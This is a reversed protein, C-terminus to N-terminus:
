KLVCTLVFNADNCRPYHYDTEEFDPDLFAFIPCCKPNERWSSLDYEVAIANLESYDITKTLAYAFASNSGSEIINDYDLNKWLYYTKGDFEITEETYIFGDGSTPNFFNSEWDQWDGPYCGDYEPLSSPFDDVWIILQHEWGAPIGRSSPRSYKEPCPSIFKGYPAVGGLWDGLIGTQINRTADCKVYHLNSCNNFMHAYCTETLIKAPLEPARELSTCGYFMEYYCSSRLTMAPLISPASKLSTCGYFMKDYCNTGNLTTAPLEPARELSTCGKFMGECGNSYITGPFLSDPVEVLDTCGQFMYECSYADCNTAAIEPTKILNTCGYFMYAYCYECLTTAPLIKPPYVISCGRFMSDYCLDETTYPFVLDSADHIMSDRLFCYFAYLPLGQSRRNYFDDPYLMSMLNGYIIWDGDTELKWIWLNQSQDEIAYGWGDGGEGVLSITDDTNLTALTVGYNGGGQRDGLTVSTWAGGNISYKITRTYEGTPGSFNFYINSNNQLARFTLPVYEPHLKSKNYMVEEEDSNWSLWPDGEKVKLGGDLGGYYADEFDSNDGFWNVHIM